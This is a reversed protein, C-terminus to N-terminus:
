DEKPARAAGREIIIDGSFTELSFRPGGANVTFRMRRNRRNLPQEGPLLTIPFASRVEGSYTQLELTAGVNSPLTLRVDGSHTNATYSGDGRIDGVFTVDGSVSEFELGTLTGRVRLEGSVSHAYLDGNVDDLTLDGSVSQARIRGRLKSARADGSVSALEVREAADRVEINGSVTNVSVEGATGRVTIDGSISAAHVYTGVPVSVEYRSNGMRGRRSHATVRVRSSTMSAELYGTEISAYIKIDTRTWGTVVIEGSVQGLDVAGGKSFAFTTDIRQLTEDRQARAAPVTVLFATAALLFTRM